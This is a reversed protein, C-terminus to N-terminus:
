SLAYRSYLHYLTQYAWKKAKWWPYKEREELDMPLGEADEPIQKEIVQVFVTAWGLMTQSNQLSKALELRISGCFTKAIIKVMEGAKLANSTVLTTAIAQLRPYVNDIVQILPARKPSLSWQYVKTFEQLALLGTYLARPDESALLTQM